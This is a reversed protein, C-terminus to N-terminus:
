RDSSGLIKCTVDEPNPLAGIARMYGLVIEDEVPHNATQKHAEFAAERTDPDKALIVALVTEVSM